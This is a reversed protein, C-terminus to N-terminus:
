GIKTYKPAPVKEVHGMTVTKITTPKANGYKYVMPAVYPEKTVKRIKVPKSNGYKYVMPAVYPRKIVKRLITPKANGYKHVKPAVYPNPTWTTTTTTTWTTTITTTTTTTWTTTTWTTTTWTTTTWAQVEAWKPTETWKSEKPEWKTKVAYNTNGKTGWKPFGNLVIAEDFDKVPEGYYEDSDQKLYETKPKSKQNITYENNEKTGWKSSGKKYMKVPKYGENDSYETGAEEEVVQKAEADADKVIDVERNNTEVLKTGRNIKALYINSRARTLNAKQLFVGLFLILSVYLGQM